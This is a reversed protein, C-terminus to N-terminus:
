NKDGLGNTFINVVHNIVINTYSDVSATVKYTRPVNQNLLKERRGGQERTIIAEKIMGNQEALNVGGQILEDEEDKNIAGRNDAQLSIDAKGVNLKKLRKDFMRGISANPDDNTYSITYSLSHLAFAGLISETIQPDKVIDATVIDEKDSVESLAKQFYKLMQSANISSNNLIIIFKHVSPIFYYRANESDLIRDKDPLAQEIKSQDISINEIIDKDFFIGKGLNGYLYDNGAETTGPFCSYIIIHKNKAIPCHVHKKALDDILKGYAALKAEGKKNTQLKINIIQYNWKIDRRQAM